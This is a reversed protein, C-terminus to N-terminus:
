EAAKKPEPKNPVPPLPPLEKVTVSVQYRKGKELTPVDNTMKKLAENPDSTQMSAQYAPAMMMMPCHPRMPHGQRHHQPKGEHHAVPEPESQQQQPAAFALTGAGLLSAALLINRMKTM